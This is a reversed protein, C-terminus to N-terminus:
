ANETNANTKTEESQKTFASVIRKMWEAPPEKERAMDAHRVQLEWLREAQSEELHYVWTPVVGPVLHLHVNALKLYRELPGQDIAVSQMRSHPVFSVRHTIRGDRIMIMTTTVMAAKRNWTIWDLWRDRRPPVFMGPAAGSGYMMTELLDTGATGIEQGDLDTVVGLNREMMWLAQLAQQRTGVPLLVHSSTNKKAQDNGQYGAMTLEVKWWDKGRWLFPQELVVAHVRGPPITQADHTTLGHRLRIGDPSMAATFNWGKNLDRIISGVVGSLVVVVGVITAPTAILAATLNKEKGSLYVMLAPWIPGLIFVAVLGIYVWTSISRLRSEILMGTPIEYLPVEPAQMAAAPLDGVIGSSAVELSKVDGTASNASQTKLGAAKALVEARLDQCQSVKLYAIDIESGSAGASDVHLKALGLLRPLLPAIVDVAQIRNLRMHREKKSILGKRFLVAQDTIAYKTVRWELYSYLVVLVLVLIIGGVFLLFPWVLQGTHGVYKLMEWIDKDQLQSGLALFLAAIIAWSDALPTFPHVRKWDADRVLNAESAAVRVDLSVETGEPVSHQASGAELVPKDNPSDPSIGSNLSISESM